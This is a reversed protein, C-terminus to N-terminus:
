LGTKLISLASSLKIKGTGQYEIKKVTGTGNLTVEHSQDIIVLDGAQPIRGLDWTTSTEWNGTTISKITVLPTCNNITLNIGNDAGVILLNSSIVRIRYGSGAITSMPITGSITGASTGTLTGLVVPNAFSGNLDSLQATFINGANFTESSTFPINIPANECFSTGAITSIAIASNGLNILESRFKKHNNQPLDKAIVGNGYFIADGNDVLVQLNSNSLLPSPLDVISEFSGGSNLATLNASTLIPADNPNGTWTYFRFDKPAIGTSGDHPGAMILYEGSANKKMERIARGGLDLQIPNGFTAATSTPNGSVLNAFNTLPIILAKTRTTTSELPARFCIYATSNNPAIEFGEINFGSGDAIEPAKGTTASATLGLFNAGLGHGNSADWALLETKLNDYRGMYSLTTANGTGAIDTAFFRYRNPRTNGNSANSHSGMWYIRNGVRASAEIDVERPLGGSLDTLGLSTTYDFSKIPLGSNQRNYLRLGQNEDDGVFMLNNDIMQATSADSTGTHFRTTTTNVSSNSSAYNIAFSATSSGNNVTVTITAFGEGSPTIKINRTAGAGTLVLNANPVVGINSSTATVTLNGVPISADNITFDIGLTKAPDTPDNIVAGLSYPSTPSTLIGGDIYNSTTAVDVVITPPGTINATLSTPQTLTYNGAGAGGLTSTSTVVIGNGVASSAFTGTGVFTVVDPSIIGTLTGTITANSNGDFVKNQAVPSTVTLALTTINATLGTPQTISYNGSKTGSLTYGTVILPKSTGVNKDNFNAIPTGSLSVDDTGIIGNLSATGTLTANTIGDYVKNDATLGNITLSKSTINATLGIIPLAIYNAADVGGLVLSSTNISINNAVDTSSFIAGGTLTVDDPSIIGNLTAGTLTSTSTGDYVKNSATAGSVTLPKIVIEGTLGLPQTLSYKSADAGTLISTSTVVLGSGVGVQSFTGTGNFTVVDTGIIGTLTGTITAVTTRDYVKNSVSPSSLTLVKPIITYILTAMGTGGNNTASITVSFPSGAVDTPTGSIEGTSTNISLGTPLNTANYSTPSNTATIFYSTSAVGYMASATLVSNISPTPLNTIDATLGSPQSVTYNVSLSGTLSYGTVTVAIGTGVSSSAFTAIPTGTLSVDDTGVVGNLTATGSLTADTNGDFVKNTATVGTITLPKVTIDALLGTPQTLSYNGADVGSITSTSTVTLGTGFTTQSFTGSLNLTVIESGIVGSLTGALTAANNGDYVKNSVSASAITLPAPTINATLSPQTLIYNSSPTSYGLVSVVKATGISATSFNATPTGTVSFIEAIELGIYAPTGSLSTTTSGDYVKNDATIGSITLGKASVASSVTAVNVNTAGTSSLVINGTYPSGFVTANAKLRVYIITSAVAGSSQTLTQTASYGSTGGLTKSIEYGTPPTVLIDNTLNSGSVTFSTPLTSPTGYTTNVSNLTGTASITPPISVSIPSFAVGKAITGTPATYLIANNSTNINITANYGSADIVKLINNATLAGQGTSLFLNAGTGQKQAALGFGGFTTTYTGNAVWSGSVLSYKAISGATNSTASLVYLIDFSSGNSGSSIFYFDQFSANNTLGPLATITGGTAASISVIQILTTTSSSQGTYVVNGFSKIARFNGSPSSGTSANTYIGGQDAIYFTSNNTSTASRTQNGSSGTYTTALSYAGSAIFKGVGRPNLTNVNTAGSTTSNAGTFLLLTGDNSNTLYGTSTASGSFRLADAPATSPITYTTGTQSITSTNIEVISGTTNTSSAGALFVTINGQTFQAHSTFNLSSILLFFLGLIYNNKM